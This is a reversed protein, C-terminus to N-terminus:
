IVIKYFTLINLITANYQLIQYELYFIYYTVFYFFITVNHIKAIKYM